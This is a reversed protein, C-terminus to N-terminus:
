EVDLGSMKVVLVALGLLSTVSGITLLSFYWPNFNRREVQHIPSQLYQEVRKLDEDSLKPRDDNESPTPADIGANFGNDAVDVDKVDNM